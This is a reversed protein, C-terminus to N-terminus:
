EDRECCHLSGFMFKNLQVLKLCDACITYIKNGVTFIEGPKRTVGNIEAM